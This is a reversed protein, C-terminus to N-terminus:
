IGVAETNQSHFTRVTFVLFCRPSCSSINLFYRYSSCIDLIKFKFNEISTTLVIDLIDFYEQRYNQKYNLSKKKTSTIYQTTTIIIINQM